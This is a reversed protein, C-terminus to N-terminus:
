SRPDVGSTWYPPCSNPLSFVPSIRHLTTVTLHGAQPCGNGAGDPWVALCVRSLWQSGSWCLNQTLGDHPSFNRIGGIRSTRSHLDAADTPNLLRGGFKRDDVALLPVASSLTLGAPAPYNPLPTGQLAGGLPLNPPVPVPDGVVPHNCPQDRRILASPVCTPLIPRQNRGSGREMPAPPCGIFSLPRRRLAHGGAGATAREGEHRRCHGEALM